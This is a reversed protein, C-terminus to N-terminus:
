ATVVLETEKETIESRSTLKSTKTREDLEVWLCNDVADHISEIHTILVIQEFRNKLNQLLAVVNSRTTEDLSGFVEDLVLLSLSQGSRQAIMQSIALRLALNVVDQEGGSIVPKLEGDDRITPKYNDDIELVNYRGDTILALLESATCELEPRVRDNLEARLSDFAEAVSQLHLRESRKAELEALRSAYFKEQEEATQLLAKATALEGNLRTLDLQAQSRQADAAAFETLCKDHAEESFALEELAQSTQSLQSTTQAIHASLESAEQNLRPERELEAKLAAGREYVPRLSDKLERLEQHRAQDYGKPLRELAARLEEMQGTKAAIDKQIRDCEALLGDAANKEARLEEVQRALKEKAAVLSQAQAQLNAIEQKQTRTSETQQDIHEIQSDFNYLVVAIEEGLPRECTPCQGDVGASAIQDRKAALQERQARLQSLSAELAKEREIRTERASQLDGDTKALLEEVERLAAEARLHKDQSDALHRLRTEFQKLDTKLASIQGTLRQRESEHKQLQDLGKLQELYDKHKNATAKLEDFERRKAGLEQIETTVQSSRKQSRELDATDLELRRGLEQNRKAKQEELDKLPKLKEVLAAAKDYVAKAQQVEKQAARLRVAAQNKRQTIEEPDALAAEIGEIERRLGKRDENASERAKTIRDFGLMRSIAIARDRGELNAMFELQKQGTFFSTFFAQYDMGLIRTVASSVESMGSRSPKGDIQLVASGSAGSGSLGRTIKYISGGLEFTLVVSVKAGGESASSRVTDNKERLAPAGYLAWAVAELITTKGSGNPGIIGTVGDAFDISTDLHQRFNELSLSILKM